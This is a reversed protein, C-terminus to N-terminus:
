DGLSFYTVKAHSGVFFPNAWQSRVNELIVRDNFIALVIAPDSLRTVKERGIERGHAKVPRRRIGRLTDGVTATWEEGKTPTFTVSYIRKDPGPVPRECLQALAAYLEEQETPTAGPVFFVPAKAM